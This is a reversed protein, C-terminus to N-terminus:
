RKQVIPLLSYGILIPENTDVLLVQGVKIPCEEVRKIRTVTQANSTNM